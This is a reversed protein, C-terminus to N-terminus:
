AIIPEKFSAGQAPSSGAVMRNVTSHEVLQAILSQNPRILLHFQMLLCNKKVDDFYQLGRGSDFRFALIQLGRRLWEAVLGWQDTRYLFSILSVVAFRIKKILSSAGMGSFTSIRGIRLMNTLTMTFANKVSYDCLVEAFLHLNNYIL